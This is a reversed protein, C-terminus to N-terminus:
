FVCKKLIGYGMKTQLGGFPHSDILWFVIQM